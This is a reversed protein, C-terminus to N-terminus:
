RAVPVALTIEPVYPERIWREVDRLRKELWRGGGLRLAYEVECSTTAMRFEENVRTSAIRKSTDRDVDIGRKKLGCMEVVGHLLLHRNEVVDRFSV